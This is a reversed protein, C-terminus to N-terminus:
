EGSRENSPKLSQQLYEIRNRFYQRHEYKGSLALGFEAEEITAKLLLEKIAQEGEERSYGAELHPSDGGLEHNMGRRIREVIESVEKSQETM